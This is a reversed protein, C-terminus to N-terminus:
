GDPELGLKVEWFSYRLGLASVLVTCLYFMLGVAVGVEEPSGLVQAGLVFVLERIGMGGLTLPLVSVISSFLFLFSFALLPARNGFSLLILAVCGLQALQVGLSYLLSPLHVRQWAPFLRWLGLLYVGLGTPLGLGVGWWILTGTLWVPRTIGALQATGALLDDLPLGFLLLGCWVLIAVLGSLRDLLLASALTKVPTGYHRHLLFGKYGDGSISGPLFLNYYMGLLYLRWNAETRIPVAAALWYRQLRLASLWKSVLFALLALLLWGWHSRRIVEGFAQWDVKRYILWAIVLTIILKLALGAPQKWSRTFTPPATQL